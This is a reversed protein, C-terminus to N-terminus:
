NPNKRNYKDEDLDVGKYIYNYRIVRTRISKTSIYAIYTLIISIVINYAIDIKSYAEPSNHIDLMLLLKLIWAKIFLYWTFVVYLQSAIFYFFMSKNHNLQIKRKHFIRKLTYITTEESKKMLNHAGLIDSIIWYGDFKLLPNLNYVVILLNDWLLM